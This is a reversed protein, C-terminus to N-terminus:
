ENHKKGRSKYKKYIFLGIIIILLPLAIYKFGWLLSCIAQENASVSCRSSLTSCDINSYNDM